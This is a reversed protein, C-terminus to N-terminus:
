IHTRIHCASLVDSVCRIHLHTDQHLVCMLHTDSTSGSPVCVDCMHTQHAHWQHSVCMLHTDSTRTQMDPSQSCATIYVCETQVCMLRCVRIHHSELSQHSTVASETLRCDTELCASLCMVDSDASQHAHLSLIHIDRCVYMVWTCMYMEYIHCSEYVCIHCMGWVCVHSMVWTCIYTFQSVCVHSMVWICTYTVHSMYRRVMHRTPLRYRGTTTAHVCIYRMYGFMHCSEYVCIHSMVWVCVHSMVWICMCIVYSMNRRVMHRTPLRCRGTTTSTSLCSWRQHATTCRTCCVPIPWTIDIYVHILWSDHCM